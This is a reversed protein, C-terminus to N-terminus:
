DDLWGRILMGQMQQADDQSRLAEAVKQNEFLPSPDEFSHLSTAGRDNACRLLQVTNPSRRQARLMEAVFAPSHTTVIVQTGREAIGALLDAIVEIRRPHVGNEPEELAVLSPHFPNAAIACLALVRLTGESVVRSSFETGNQLLRIDLTGRQPDLDVDLATVSPIAAHLARQAAKFAPLTGEGGKLRFLFPALHEGNVGVDGVERPPQATRMAGAPDLYYSRWGSVEERLRDFDPYKEGSFQLNSVVTHHLPLTEHRAQGQELLRRVALRDGDVQEVRPKSELVANRGMRAFHEDVLRAEGSGPRMEVAVRYRLLPYKPEREVRPRLVAEIDLKVAPRGLLESLGGSPLSFAEVPYGRMPPGLADGVTRETILRSLLLLAEIFNSKGAANPGFLVNLPRLAVDVDGLSKFGRIRARELM